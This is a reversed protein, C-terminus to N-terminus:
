TGRGPRTFLSGVLAFVALFELRGIWMLGALLLKVPVPAGPQVVGISLGTNSVAATAAFLGETLDIDGTILQLAMAGGLSALLFLLLITSAARVHADTLRHRRRHQYTTVVLASEPLLVRRVEGVIGKAILGIRVAKVGGSASSALGGVTMAAVLAAPAMPGWDTAILRAPGVTLGSTTHASVITFVGHRFLAETGAFAGARALGLISLVALVALSIVFTSADLDRHVGRRPGRWLQQHLGLALAGALMVVATVIELSTAHHLGISASTLAFGSTTFASSFITAAHVLARRPSHGALLAAVVLSGGGAVAWGGTILAAWRVTRRVNPLVREDRHEPIHVTALGDSSRAFLAQISILITLGGLLQLSHRWLNMALGLHDLDQTLTLGTTTLGSMAEFSADLYSGYQGSLYLPVAAIATAALWGWAMTIFAHTWTLPTRSRLWRVGISGLAIAAGAGVGLAAVDNWAGVVVGVALAPLMAVGVATVIRALAYGFV